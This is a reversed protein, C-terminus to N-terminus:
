KINWKNDEEYFSKVISLARLIGSNYAERKPTMQKKNLENKLEAKLKRYTWKDLM